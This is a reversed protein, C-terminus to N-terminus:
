STSAAERIKEVIFGPGVLIGVKTSTETQVKEYEGVMVGGFYSILWASINSNEGAGRSVKYDLVKKGLSGEVKEDNPGAM